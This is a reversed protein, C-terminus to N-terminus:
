VFSSLEEKLWKYGTQWGLELGSFVEINLGDVVRLSQLEEISDRGQNNYVVVAMAQLDESSAITMKAGFCYKYNNIRNYLLAFKGKMHTNLFEDCEEQMEISVETGENVIVEVINDALLNLTAFSLQHKM